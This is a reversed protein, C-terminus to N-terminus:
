LNVIRNRQPLFFHRAAVPLGFALAAILATSILDNRYFPLGAFYAMELGAYSRPYFDPSALWASFNSILFFSTSSAFVSASVRLLSSRSTLMYHGMFIVGAYWGWTLLYGAVHFPSNNFATLYCDVAAFLAVPVFFQRVPRRAGFYLLSAGVATFSMWSSHPIVRSLIALVLLLYASM